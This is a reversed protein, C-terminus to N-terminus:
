SIFEMKKLEVGEIALLESELKDWESKEGILELIILGNKGCINSAAEHLGLRTRIICGFKTLVEQIKTAEKVRNTLLVGVIRIM